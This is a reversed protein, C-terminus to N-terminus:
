HCSLVPTESTQAAWQPWVRWSSASLLLQCISRGHLPRASGEGGWMGVLADGKHPGGLHPVQPRVALWVHAEAFDGSVSPGARGSMFPSSPFPLPLCFLSGLLSCHRVNVCDQGTLPVGNGHSDQRTASERWRGISFGAAGSTPRTSAACVPMCPAAQQRTWPETGVDCCGPQM